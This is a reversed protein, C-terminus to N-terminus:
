RALPGDLRENVRSFIGNEVVTDRRWEEPGAEDGDSTARCSGYRVTRRPERSSIRLLHYRPLKAVEHSYNWSVCEFSLSLCELNHLLHLHKYFEGVVFRYDLDLRELNIFRTLHSAIEIRRHPLRNESDSLSLNKITTPLDELLPYLATASWEPDVNLDVSILHANPFFQQLRSLDGFERRRSFRPDNVAIVQVQPASPATIDAEIDEEEEEDDDETSSREEEESSEEGEVSEDASSVSSDDDSWDLSDEVEPAIRAFEVRRLNPNRALWSVIRSSLSCDVLRVVELSTILAELNPDRLIHSIISRSGEMFDM